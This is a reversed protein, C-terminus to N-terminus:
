RELVEFGRDRFYKMFQRNIDNNTPRLYSVVRVRGFTSSRLDLDKCTNSMRKDVMDFSNGGLKGALYLEVPITDTIMIGVFQSFM